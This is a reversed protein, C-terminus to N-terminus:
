QGSSGHKAILRQCAHITALYYYFMWSYWIAADYNNKQQDNHHRIGFNNAINFLDAEDKSPIVAKVRPRLYELVDVLDQLAHRRDELSSKHRRFRNTAAQVRAEVNHPDHSPLSAELLPSMGPEPLSLLEGEESLEFGEGYSRLIANVAERYEKQGERRNFTNYHMGCENYSHYVGDVPKSVHDFMFEIVDFLDDESYSEIRTALPWLNPKRLAILMAGDIDGGLTGPVDGSDVCQYGFAEQFFDKERFQRDVKLIIQKLAPLTLKVADPNKGTRVSYYGRDRM